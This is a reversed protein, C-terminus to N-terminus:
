GNTIQAFKEVFSKLCIEPSILRNYMKISKRLKVIKDFNYPVICIGPFWM